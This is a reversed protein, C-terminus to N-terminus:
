SIRFTATSGDVDTVQTRFRGNANGAVANASQDGQWQNRVLVCQNLQVTQGTNATLKLTNTLTSSNFDNYLTWEIYDGVTINDAGGFLEIIHAKTPMTVATDAGDSTVTVYGQSLMTNTLITAGNNTAQETIGTGIIPGTNVNSRMKATTTGVAQSTDGLTLSIHNPSTVGDKFEVGDGSSQVVGRTNDVVVKVV